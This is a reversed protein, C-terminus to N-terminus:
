QRTSRAAFTARRSERRCRCQTAERFHPRDFRPSQSYRRKRSNTRRRPRQRRRRLPRNPKRPHPHLHRHPHPLRHPHPARSVSARLKPRQRRPPAQNLRAEATTKISGAARLPSARHPFSREFSEAATSAYPSHRIPSSRCPRSGDIAATANTNTPRCETVGTTGTPRPLKITKAIPGDSVDTDNRRPRSGGVVDVM